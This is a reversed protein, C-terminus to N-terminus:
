SLSTIFHRMASRLAAPQTLWIVHPADSIECYEGKPLLYAIQKVAWSPRIDKEGYIFLMPTPLRSVEQLLFPDQIYRKRAANLQQNVEDNVPYALQPQLEGKEEGAKYAKHWERDNNLRGGAICLGGLVRQRHKLAYMLALDAGWSHGGVLWKEFGFHTRIAEMDEFTQEISYHDSADSRGCGRQEWRVVQAVDSVMAAVDALYDCLGPGGNCLLLPLGSGSSTTWLKVSGSQVFKEIM